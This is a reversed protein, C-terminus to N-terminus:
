TEKACRNGILHHARQQHPEIRQFLRLDVRQEGLHAGLGFRHHPEAYWVTFQNLRARTEHAIAALAV